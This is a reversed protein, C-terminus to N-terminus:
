KNADHPLNEVHPIKTRKQESKLQQLILLLIVTFNRNGFIDCLIVSKFVKLYVKLIYFLTDVINGVKERKLLVWKVGLIDRSCKNHINEVHYHFGLFRFNNRISNMLNSWAFDLLLNPNAIFSQCLVPYLFTAWTPTTFLLNISEDSITEM